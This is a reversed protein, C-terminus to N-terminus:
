KYSAKGTATVADYNLVLGIGSMFYKTCFIILLVLYM